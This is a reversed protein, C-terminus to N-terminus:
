PGMKKSRKAVDFDRVEIALYCDMYNQGGMSILYEMLFSVAVSNNLVVHLPLQVLEEDSLSSASRPFSELLGEFLLM